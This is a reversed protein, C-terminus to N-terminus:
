SLWLLSFSICSTKERLASFQSFMALIVIWGMKRCISLVSTKPLLHEINMPYVSVLYMFSFVLNCIQQQQCKSKKICKQFLPFSFKKKGELFVYEQWGKEFTQVYFFRGIKM